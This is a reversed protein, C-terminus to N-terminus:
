NYSEILSPLAPILPLVGRRTSTHHYKGQLELASQIKRIWSDCNGHETTVLLQAIFICHSRHQQTGLFKPCLSLPKLTLKQYRRVM